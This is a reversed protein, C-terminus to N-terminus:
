PPVAQGVELLRIGCDELRRLVRQRPRDTGFCAHIHRDSQFWFLPEAIIEGSHSILPEQSVAFRKWLGVLWARHEDGIVDLTEHVDDQPSIVPTVFVGHAKQMAPDSLLKDLIRKTAVRIWSRNGPGREARISPLDDADDDLV